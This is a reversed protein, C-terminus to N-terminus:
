PLGMIVGMIVRVRHKLFGKELPVTNGKLPRGDLEVRLVGRSVGQPNEVAIEYVAQGRKYRLSFGPWARPIVPDLIMEDGRIKMGLIDELYVRYMWGAAGTYWTWGGRGLRGSLRYVDAAVVYPEVLYRRADDEGRAREVPNLLSLIREARDGDGRRAFAAALWLAAHTYQGGNERVGPPYGKIYGPEQSSRDFPPALLLVLGEDERVLHEWASELAKGAREDQAGGSLVAWSQAVSDIRAEESSSSGLPTGDDYFGRLYWLGDWAAQEIALGLTDAKRLYEEAEPGRELLRALGAMDRLVRVLFWALWVSEGRGAIGVRDLGDNWDGAGMLPLGHPGATLGRDVARRCHEFLTASEGTVTPTGYMERQDAGLEPAALFPVEEGLIGADGTARVYRATAYPLWLMDDSCRSRVGRGAPPHWWHQVDGETFQRGAALLLHERAPEPAGYLLALADQLQDRFGFAGGSQYFGTRGWMRSGLTQYPLWRNVLFDVSAVPTKVTVSGLQRDWWGSTAHLSREASDPTRYKGVLRRAEEESGAQGLLCVVATSQGPELSVVTRLAACPDLGAGCRGSLHVRGMAAPAAPTGNRGLFVARDGTFSEPAPSIAAFAIRDAFDPHYSNRATMFRETGEWRTVVHMRTNERDDGLTWEVFFTVSLKRPRSSDNRLRLLQVRVPEGGEDSMPVFTILEQEIAHSNHEFVTYGAGHRARYADLERIPLPTPTWLWGTEEDRLYIADSPTDEVPDNSWGTLRNLQSNGSWTYGAGSESMVTGFRPNAMVNVWPAPTRTGPGLYIAYERGDPTFGGLGNFYSLEMFPLPASPEEAARRMPLQEASEVPAGPVGFQQSLSGRAAVLVVRACSFILTLEEAPIQDACRLFLGGPQDVGTYMSHSQVLRKLEEQLPQDYGSAEENLIVLDARLGHRNWYTHAELVERVLGIDGAHAITAVALPLDGSIGHAWLRAQGLRNQRIHHASARMKAAPYILYSALHQFRRAAEAQIRLRRLELQSHTWALELCRAVAAPGSFRELLALLDERSGAAALILSVSVSQGPDLTVRTRLSFVPDLVHGASNSLGGELAAPDAASRGRGIFRGRDTEFRFPGPEDADLVMRHGAWITEEGPERPRRHALLVGREPDGETQVFLKSFAPHLRDAEHPALSLEMYSTLELERIKRSRNTLTLRRIEVDEEPSVTIESVTAIGADTRRYEARDVAFNVTFEDAKRGLPQHTNCWTEGSKADRIYCFSGWHDRTSDSRWRTLDFGKYRSYGGGANTVMLSFRGNSFIQTKPNTSHPTDFRSVSPAVDAPMVRSPAREGVPVQYLPPSLPVREYLLPEAARVRFDRHFRRTMIGDNILNNIALLGMGQHHAMFAQVIIHPSGEHRRQRTFDIAEYLGYRGRLGLRSLRDLNRVAARPDVALALLTAYPAVVLDDELGRKLGLGPVGFAQYQYTQQADLDGYASESIGWPVGKRRGYAIQMELAERCAEDLLSNPYSRMLLLPMFYEFMTGSWSLLVHRGGMSGYPRALALWHAVPADGRAVAIFSALRAESALLDYHSTDPVGQSVHYGISFLRRERDYLFALDIGESLARIRERLTTAGALMEGALWRASSLKEGLRAMWAGQCSGPCSGPPASRADPSGCAEQLLRLSVGHGGALDGLVPMDSLAKERAREWAEGPIAAGADEALVEMWGLYRDVINEWASAQSVIRGAWYISEPGAGSAPVMMAALDRARPAAARIRRVLDIARGPPDRSLTDLEDVLRSWGDGAGGRPLTGKLVRLTDNIGRLSEPGLLPRRVAERIGQELAWLAGLLNGSDVTSVYRPQLPELTKLDYWNLLHGRYRELGEITSFSRNLRDILGDPSLYGLDCAAMTSLLGLGINTPSTRMALDDRPSEQYNDPPLWRTHDGVFDEFTRWTERALTRLMRAHDGSVRRHGPRARPAASLRWAILPSALWFLLFPAAAVVAAPRATWLAAGVGLAFLSGAGMRVLRIKDGASGKSQRAQATTWALLRRRSILRRYGARFVAGLSIAAQHPILATDAAARVLGHVIEKGTVMGPGPRTTVLTALRSLPSFLLTAGVLVGAAAAAAPSLFWAALLLLLWAPPVLSRRLNDFIKWRDLAGLPNPGYGGKGSPVRPLIWDAIQWDGRIWRHQRTTFSFYDGPSEDFLEIDSALGVRLHAGELLDHSLIRQEPFRGGLVRHFVRPDYIGKGHYSGEGSLDQYVDSVARTYPDTGVPDNFLMSFPTASASPLSCSVRPQIIAYTGEEVAGDKGLRPQNLPHALTEVMRRASDRPLQTDSDLTIVFRIGALLDPDGVRVMGRDKGRAGEALFRNLEELKGRKREWGMYRRESETWVRPRHLLFFRNGGHRANLKKVGEVALALLRADEERHPTDSDTLDTFISFLLNRDPNALFRVELKELDERVTRPSALLVPIVVLTRFEDPIGEKEFSMKPLTRPPLLRTALYNVALVSLQSAPLLAAAMLGAGKGALLVAGAAALVPALTGLGVAALYLLTPRRYVAQLIRKRLTERCGIRERLLSRGPGILFYGVHRLRPDAAMEEGPEEALALAIGAVEDEPRGSGRSLEEVAHRYRDHTDFDMRPYIGGPDARLMKEVVSHREFVDRWDMHTLERLSSVANGISVQAAAQANQELRIVDGMGSGLRRELWSRVPALAAEEDYLHEILQSAFYPSPDDQERALEALFFFLQDPDRRAATMLRNAWFDATESERLRRSVEMALHRLVNILAIRLMLPLAWLEGITLKGAEQYSALYDDFLRPDLRCDTHFVLDRAISFSRPEGRHPGERLVPLQHYFEQPLNKKVDDIHRQVIYANDLIWEASTTINGELLSAEALEQRVQEIVGECLGLLRLLPEGKGKERAVPHVAALERAHDRLRDSDLIDRLKPAAEAAHRRPSHLVFLAPPTEGFTRLIGIARALGEPLAEVIVLSEGPVMWRSHKQLLGGAVGPRLRTM